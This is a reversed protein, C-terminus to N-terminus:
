GPHTVLRELLGATEAPSPLARVEERLLAASRAFAPDALLRRVAEAVRAGDDVAATDLRLGAGSAVVGGANEEGDVTAPFVLQPVGAASAALTTGAGGQHVVAACSPLLLHLPMSEAVRTGAPLGEPARGAPVALVLEAGLGALAGAIRAVPEPARAASRTSTGWTVCVRPRRPPVRLWDPVEGAGNYPVHATPLRRVAPAAPGGSLRLSPPCPDVTAVGLPDVGAPDLGHAALLPALFPGEEDWRGATYDTGWLQRVLPVKLVEAAVLGAYARPEHVVLDPRWHRAFDLLDPTMAGGVAAFMTMARARRERIHAGPAAGAGGLVDFGRWLARTDVDEGCSVWPLGSGLVLGALAPSSAVRVSHGRARLAWALPVLPFYHSAKPFAALLVRM